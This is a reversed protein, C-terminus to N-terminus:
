GEKIFIKEFNQFIRDKSLDINKELKKTINKVFEDHSLFQQIMKNSQIDVKLYNSVLIKDSEIYSNKFVLLYFLKKACVIQKKNLKLSLKYNLIKRNYDTVNKPNHTIGFNSYFSDGALLPKKGFCSAELGITGRGTIILDSFKILSYTSLEKPCIVLNKPKNQLLRYILNEEKYKYSQPHIKIVWLSDRDKEALKITNQFQEYYDDFILKGARHNADSFCHPAFFVLRKFDKKNFNFIKLFEDKNITKKKHYADIATHYKIKGRYRDRLMINFKKQWSKSFIKKDKLFKLDFVFEIREAQIPKTYIRLRNSLINLVKIKKKLAVRLGLAANSAYTHTPSIVYKYNKKTILKDLFNIKYIRIFLIKLFQYNLINRKLFNHNNRIYEDYILDGFYIDKIKYNRVFWSRGFFYIKFISLLFLFITSSIIGFKLLNNKINININENIGFSNYIKFLYHKKSVNNLLDVNFFHKKNLIYAFFSNLIASDALGRDILLIKKNFNRPKIKFFNKKVFSEIIKENM